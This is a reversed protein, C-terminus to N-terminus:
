ENVKNAGKYPQSLMDVVTHSERMAPVWLFMSPDWGAMTFWGDHTSMPTTLAASLNVTLKLVKSGAINRIVQYPFKNVEGDTLVIITDPTFGLREREALAAHFETSGAISGRRYSQLESQLDVISRSTDIGKLTLASTGFLTVALKHTGHNARLLVAALFTAQSFASTEVGNGGMSGSFDVIIWVREGM